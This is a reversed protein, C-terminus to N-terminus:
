AESTVGFIPADANVDAEAINTLTVDAAKEERLSETLVSACDERGLQRMWSILTGYKAIEYHEVAQAAAILAADLVRKDDIDGAADEAEMIIGNIAPRTVTRPEAGLMQFVQELRLVQNRTEGLHRDFAAKLRASTTKGIMQPLAVLMRQEAYYIEGLGHNVLEDMTKMDRSFQSM